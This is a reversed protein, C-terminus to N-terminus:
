LVGTYKFQFKDTDNMGFVDYLIDQKESNEVGPNKYNPETGQINNGTIM